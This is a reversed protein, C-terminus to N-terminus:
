RHVMKTSIQCWDLTYSGGHSGHCKLRRRLTIRLLHGQLWNKYVGNKSLARDEEPDFAEEEEDGHLLQPSNSWEVAEEEQVEENLIPENADQDSDEEDLRSSQEMMIDEGDFPKELRELHKHPMKTHIEKLCAKGKNIHLRKLITEWYEVVEAVVVICNLDALVVFVESLLSPRDRGSLEITTHETASQVGVSRALTQFSRGLSKVM